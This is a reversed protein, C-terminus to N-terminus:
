AFFRDLTATPESKWGIHKVINNIPELFGKEFQVRRDVYTDLKFQPPLIAAFGVCSIGYPNNKKIYVFKIKEGSKLTPFQTINLEKLLHNHFIASKAQIPCGKTYLERPNQWKELDSIGRPFAIEDVPLTDFESRVGSVFQQLKHQDGEIIVDIGKKIRERAAGPTSSRVAEIGVIKVKPKDYAVGENNYVNLIYHKKGTWIGVDALAERKMDMEQTRAHMHKALAEYGANLVPGITEKCVQDMFDIIKQKNSQDKFIAAIFNELTIYLSDTDIAIVYDVNKTKLMKNLKQNVERQAWKISVQGSLTIAEANDPDFWRNHVNALAGYGGNLFIKTSHQLNDYKSQLFEWKKKEAPDKANVANQKAELMLKKYKAREDFLLQMIASIFSQIDTRYVCGNGALTEDPGLLSSPDVSGDMISDPRIGDLKRVFTEPGINYQITIKPYLSTLDFSVPWRHLGCQPDKVHGGEIKFDKTTIKEFPVVTKRDMLYKHIMVDWPRVTGFIDQYNIGARYAFALAIDILNLKVDLDDILSVDRVNYEAYLQPNERYLTALDGYESYDLKKMKLEQECIYDLSMREPRGKLPIQFKEYLQMYDFDAVGVITYLTKLTGFKSMVERSQLQGWPSLRKAQDEGLIRTIRRILYPIDFGQINWGSVADPALMQWIELFKRLLAVEDKCKFYTVHPLASTDFDKLGISYMKRNLSISIMTVFKEAKESDGFGGESDTEIDLPCVRISERDYVNTEFNHYIYQYPWTSYGHINMGEVDKYQEVFEKADYINGFDVRKVRKGFVTKYDGDNAEMFLYPAYPIIEKIKKDDVYKIVQLKGKFQTVSTYFTSM